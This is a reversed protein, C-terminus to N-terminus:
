AKANVNVNVYDSYWKLRFGGILIWTTMLNSIVPIHIVLICKLTCSKVAQVSINCKSNRYSVHSPLHHYNQYFGGM